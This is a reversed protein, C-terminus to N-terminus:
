GPRDLGTQKYVRKVFLQPKEAHWAQLAQVPTQHKLARQPILHNYTMLYHKLTDDLEAASPFRIQNVLDSIRGNFREVMGNTQPHRTSVLPARHGAICVSCTLYM